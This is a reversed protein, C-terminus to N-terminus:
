SHVSKRNKCVKSCPPLPAGFLRNLYLNHNRMLFSLRTLAQRFVAVGADDVHDVVAICPEDFLRSDLYYVTVYCCFCEM